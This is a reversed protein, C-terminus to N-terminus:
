KEDSWKADSADEPYKFHPGQDECKPLRRGRITCGERHAWYRVAWGGRVSPRFEITETVVGNQATIEAQYVDVYNKGGPDDKVGDMSPSLTALITKFEHPPITGVDEEFGKPPFTTWRQLSLSVGTLTFSGANWVVMRVVPGNGPYVQPAIYAFADGGTVNLLNLKSQSLNDKALRSVGSFQDLTEEFQDHANQIIAGTTKDNAAEIEETKRQNNAEIKNLAEAAAIRGETRDRDIARTETIFLAGALVTLLARQLLKPSSFTMGLAVLALVAIAYGTPKPQYQLWLALGAGTSLVFWGWLTTPAFQQRWIRRSEEADRDSWAGLRALAENIRPLPM